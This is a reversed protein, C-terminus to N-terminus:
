SKELPPGSVTPSEDAAQWRGGLNKLLQNAAFLQRNRLNLLSAEATLVTTQSAVVNLYGVTGAKYQDQTIALNRRAAVLAQQQFRQEADLERMAALNDEVEQFAVLVTQRWIAAAFEASAQAQAWQAQRAGGDFLTQAIAPGLAWVLSPASILSAMATSRYGASAGLTISPFFAANAVGVQKFAATVRRQAATIDPRTQVLTSPLLRPVTPLDPLAATPAINLMAPPVGLLIAIAHELRARQLASERAQAQVTRLQTEAQLVDSLAVVGDAQRIRTLELARQNAQTTRELLAQQAEAARMAFYTQTLMAQASLRVAAWEDRSAQLNHEQAQAALSWRGWLDLEWSASASLGYSTATSRPQGGLSPSASRTATAGIGVGPWLVAQSAQLSAQASAVQALALRIGENGIVLRSQLDDLVPDRFLRWWDSPIEADVLGTTRDGVPEWIGQQKFQMPIAADTPPAPPSIACGTVLSVSLIAALFSGAIRAPSLWSNQDGRGFVTGNGSLHRAM